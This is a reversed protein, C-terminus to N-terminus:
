ARLADSACGYLRQAWTIMRQEDAAGVGAFGYHADAKRDLLRRLDRAMEKGGPDVTELLSVASRHDPGRHHEGLRACCAADSAAIGSLVALAAAIGPFEEDGAVLLAADLYSKARALREIAQTRTCSQRGGSARPM